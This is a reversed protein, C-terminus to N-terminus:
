SQEDTCSMRLFTEEITLELLPPMATAPIVHVPVEQEIMMPAVTPMLNCSMEVKIDEIKATHGRFAVLTLQGQPDRVAAGDEPLRVVQVRTGDPKTRALLVDEGSFFACAELAPTVVPEGVQNARSVASAPSAMPDTWTVVMTDAATLKANADFRSSSCRERELYGLEVRIQSEPLIEYGRARLQELAKTRLAQNHKDVQHNREFYTDQSVVAAGCGAGLLTVM